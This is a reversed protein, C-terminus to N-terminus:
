QNELSEFFIQLQEQLARLTAGLQEAQWRMQNWELTYSYAHRFFHRFRLYEVLRTRLPEDIIAPRKEEVPSAMQNLLDAHWTEGRPLTEGLSIAVREFIREIGNYFEHVMGAIAYLEVWTPPQTGTTLLEAMREAVRNLATLEDDVLAKLALIPNDPMEVEGLIRARLEPYVDELPVLDLELELDRPLLKDCAAYAPFFDEPKLGEVALDIDSTEHWVGQGALSGFLIVRRAGFRNKLLAMCEEAVALARKRREEIKSTAITELLQLRWGIKFSLLNISRYLVLCIKIV